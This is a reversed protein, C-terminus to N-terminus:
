TRGTIKQILGNLCDVVSKGSVSEIIFNKDTSNEGHGAFSNDHYEDIELTYTVGKHMYIFNHQKFLKSGQPVKATKWDM